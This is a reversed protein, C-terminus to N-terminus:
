GRKELALEWGTGRADSGYPIGSPQRIPHPLARDERTAPRRLLVPTPKINKRYGTPPDPWHTSVQPPPGTTEPDNEYGGGGTDVGYNIGGLQYLERDQLIDYLYPLTPFIRNRYVGVPRCRSALISRMNRLLYTDSLFPSTAYSLLPNRWDTKPTPSWRFVRPPWLFCAFARHSTRLFIRAACPQLGRM